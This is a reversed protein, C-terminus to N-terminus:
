SIFRQFTFGPQRIELENKSSASQAESAYAFMKHEYDEIAAQVSQYNGSTLNDALLLADMLGTNVGQGAFPPMLHAADGILTIPLPRDAKWPHDFSLKRTPLGVFFSTAKFLEHYRRNWDTFRESLYTRICAPSEFDLGYGNSWEEPRRFTIGYALAGGNSPNAVLLNGQYSSMLINGGCLHYFSPCKRIPDHVEGQIIFTGTDEVQADTVYPRVRSMGGNAGIVLDAVDDPKEDFYLRWRGNDQSLGTCKRDWVVTNASLSEMLLSRLDNRSIEPQDYRNEAAPKKSFIVNGLQDALTRGMPKALTFYRDLLGAKKLAAQGSEKHLDLTGGWIRAQADKDREYVKVHVGQQQLLSALTLGVPGAGIIAVQKNHLIM